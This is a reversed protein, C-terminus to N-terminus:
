AAVRRAFAGISALSRRAEPLTAAFVHWNHIMGPALEFEVEVGAARARDVFALVQDRLLEAEGVQVLLPPLGRLDAFLPSARGDRPDAGGLYAAAWVDADARTAWDYAENEAMSGDRASVDVWPCILAAGAPLPVGAERLALLTTVSLNGGSSDGAFLVRGPAIGQALLARYAAVVDEIAAPFPHEPALRYTLALVRARAALAVRGILEEHTDISGYIYAGGHLYIVVRDEAGKRPTFWAGPVGAIEVPERRVQRAVASPATLADWAARQRLPDLPSIRRQFARMHEALIEVQLSWGPRMPGRRLRRPIVLAAAAALGALHDLMSM